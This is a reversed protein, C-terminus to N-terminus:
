IQFEPVHQKRRIWNLTRLIVSKQVLQRELRYKGPFNTIFLGALITLLGQGPTILMIVGCILLVIGIFNKISRLFFKSLSFPETKYKRKPAVFYDAPIRAIIIPIVLISIILLILSSLGLWYFWESYNSFFDVLSQQM